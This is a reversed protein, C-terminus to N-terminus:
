EFCSRSAINLTPRCSALYTLAAECSAGQPSWPTLAAAIVVAVPLGLAKADASDLLGVRGRQFLRFTLSPKVLSCKNSLM